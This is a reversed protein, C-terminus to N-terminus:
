DPVTHSYEIIVFSLVLQPLRLFTIQTLILTKPTYLLCRVSNPGFNTPCFHSIYVIVCYSGKYNLYANSKTSLHHIFNMQILHQKRLVMNCQYNIVKSNKCLVMWVSITSSVETLHFSSISVKIVKKM